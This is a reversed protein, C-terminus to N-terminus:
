HAVVSEFIRSEDIIQKANLSNENGTRNNAPPNIWVAGPLVPAIPASKVFREPHMLYASDLTEQRVKTVEQALGYHVSFPTSYRLERITISLTIGTL